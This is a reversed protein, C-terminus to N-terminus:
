RKCYILLPFESEWFTKIRNKNNPQNRYIIRHAKQTLQNLYQTAKANPYYTRSYTLDDTLGIFMDSIEDPKTNNNKDLLAEFAEWKKMNKHLFQIENM